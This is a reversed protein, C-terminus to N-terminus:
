LLAFLFLFFFFCCVEGAVNALVLKQQWGDL